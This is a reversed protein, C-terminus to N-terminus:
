AVKQTVRVKGFRFTQRVPFKFVIARKWAHRFLAVQPHKSAKPTLPETEALFKEFLDDLRKQEAAREARKRKWNEIWIKIGMNKNHLITWRNETCNPLNAYSLLM